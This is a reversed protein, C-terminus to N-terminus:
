HDTLMLPKKEYFLNFFFIEYCLHDDCVCKSQNSLCAPLKRTPDKHAPKLLVILRCDEVRKKKYSGTFNPQPENTRLESQFILSM